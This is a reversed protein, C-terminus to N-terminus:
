SLICDGYLFMKELGPAACCRGAEVAGAVEGEDEYVMAGYRVAHGIRVDAVDRLYVPIGESTHKVFISRIDDLSTALGETRIFLATANKKM